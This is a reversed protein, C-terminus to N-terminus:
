KFCSEYQNWWLISAFLGEPIDFGEWLDRFEQFKLEVQDPFECLFSQNHDSHIRDPHCFDKPSLSFYLRCTNPREHYQTCCGDEGLLPCPVHLQYYRHMVYDEEDGEFDKPVEVQSQIQQMRKENEWCDILINEFDPRKRIQLYLYLSEFPEISQPSHHCCQACGPRCHVQNHEFPFGDLIEQNASKYFEIMWEEFFIIESSQVRNHNVILNSFFSDLEPLYLVKESLLM